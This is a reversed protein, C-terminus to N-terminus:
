DTEPNRDSGQCLAKALDFRPCIRGGAKRIGQANISHVLAQLVDEICKKEWPDDEAQTLSAKATEEARAPQDEIDLMDLEPRLKAGETHPRVIFKGLRAEFELVADAVILHRRVRHGTPTKWNLLGIALVLEYEEGLRLQQQHIAFLDSYVSHVKEWVNHETTWPLWKGEVYGSWEEQIEPHDVLRESRPFTEPQDSGECWNPNPVERVIEALLEPLDSKKRLASEDVWDECQPPVSPVEPERWNQVELWEDPEHEQDRQWARTFCGREHPVNSLWVVKQYEALDRILKTRLRAVGTLYNLLRIAKQLAPDQKQRDNSPVSIEM